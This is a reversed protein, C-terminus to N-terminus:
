SIHCTSENTRNKDQLLLLWFVLGQMIFPPASFCDADRNPQRLRAM